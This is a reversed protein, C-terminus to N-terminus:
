PRGVPINHIFLVSLVPHDANDALESQKGADTTATIKM